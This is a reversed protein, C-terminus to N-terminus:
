GLICLTYTSDTIYQAPLMYKQKYTSSKQINPLTYSVSGEGERRESRRVGKM